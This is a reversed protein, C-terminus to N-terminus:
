SYNNFLHTLEKLGATEARILAIRRHLSFTCSPPGEGLEVEPRDECRFEEAPKTGERSGVVASLERGGVGKGAQQVWTLPLASRRQRMLRAPRAATLRQATANYVSRLQNSNSHGM